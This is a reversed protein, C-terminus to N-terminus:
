QQYDEELLQKIPRLGNGDYGPALAAGGWTPHAREVTQSFAMIVSPQGGLHSHGEALVNPTTEHEQPKV